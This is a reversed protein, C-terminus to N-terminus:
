QNMMLFIKMKPINLAHITHLNINKMLKCLEVQQCLIHSLNVVNNWMMRQGVCFYGVKVMIIKKMSQGFSSLYIGNKFIKWLNVCRYFDIVLIDLLKVSIANSYETNFVNSCCHYRSSKMDFNLSYIWKFLGKFM